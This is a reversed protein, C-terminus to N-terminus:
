TPQYVGRDLNWLSMGAHMAQPMWRSDQIAVLQARAAVPAVALTARAANLRVQMNPHGYLEMLATRRDGARAKLEAEMAIIDRILRKVKRLDDDLEAEYQAVGTAAYRKVLAEVSLDKLTTNKM